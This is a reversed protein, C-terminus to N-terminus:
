RSPGSKRQFKSVAKLVTESNVTTAGQKRMYRLANSHTLADGPRGDRVLDKMVLVNFNHDLGDDATRVVCASTNFGCILLTDIKDTALQIRLKGGDDFASDTTKLAVRDDNAPIFEHFDITGTTKVGDHVFYVAYVPIGANRFAPAIDRIRKAIEHTDPTGKKGRPDAFEKQVDIVLLAPNGTLRLNEGALNEPQMYQMVQEVRKKFSM